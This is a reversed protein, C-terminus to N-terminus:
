NGGPREARDIVLIELPGKHAELKLGLQNEVAPFLYSSDGEVIARAAYRLTFDFTGAIGTKDLVPRDVGAFDSLKEAFEPMSTHEFVFDGDIVRLSSNEDARARRLKPARKGAVLEYVPLTKTERHLALAFREALLAQLMLRLQEESAPHGTKAQIDYREGTMWGPGSVQYFRVGYAWHICFSLGANVLTLSTPSHMVRERGSGEGGSRAVASPRISAVDFVPRADQEAAAAAVACAAGVLATRRTM